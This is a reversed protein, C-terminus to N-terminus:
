YRIGNETLFQRIVHINAGIGVVPFRPDAAQIMGIVEFDSNLVLSGSSGFIAPVTFFCVGESDCGSFKGEFHPAVGDSRMSLPASITYVNDGIDPMSTAIKITRAQPMQAIVLCLDNEYDLDIIEAHWNTGFFDTVTLSMEIGFLKDLAELESTDKYATECFHGATLVVAGKDTSHIIMGSASSGEIVVREDCEGTDSDCEDVSISKTITLSVFNDTPIKTTKDPVKEVILAISSLILSLFIFIVMIKLMRDKIEKIM